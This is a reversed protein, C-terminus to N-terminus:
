SEDMWGCTDCMDGRPTYRMKGGCGLVPCNMRSTASRIWENAPYPDFLPDTEAYKAGLALAEMLPLIEREITPRQEYPGWMNAEITHTQGCIVEDHCVVVSYKPRDWRTLPAHENVRIEYHM